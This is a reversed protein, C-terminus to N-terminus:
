LPFPLLSFLATLGHFEGVAGGAAFEPTSELPRWLIPAVLHDRTVPEVRPVFNLPQLYSLRQSSLLM